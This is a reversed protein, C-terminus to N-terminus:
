CRSPLRMVSTSAAALWARWCCKAALSPHPPTCALTCPAALPVPPRADAMWRLGGVHLCRLVVVAAGGGGCWLRRVVWVQKMVFERFGPLAEGGDASCWEGALQEVAQVCTKRVGALPYGNAARAVSRSSGAAHLESWCAVSRRGACGAGWVRAGADIHTAGGRMLAGLMGDLTGPPAGLLVGALGNHVLAHAFAYYARQLEARERLDETSGAAAPRDTATPTSLAAPTCRAGSWDWDAPLLAHVRAVCM